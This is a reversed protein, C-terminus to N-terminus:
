SQRNLYNVVLQTDTTSEASEFGDIDFKWIVFQIDTDPVGADRCMNIFDLLSMKRRRKPWVVPIFCKDKLSLAKFQAKTIKIM